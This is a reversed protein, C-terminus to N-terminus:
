VIEETKKGKPKKRVARIFVKKAEEDVDYFVRWEGIRLEWLPPEYAFQAVLPELKKCNKSSKCPESRLHSEIGDEITRRYYAPICILEDQAEPVIRIQYM